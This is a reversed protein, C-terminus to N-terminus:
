DEGTLRVTRRYRIGLRDLFDYTCIERPLRGEMSEPRGEYLEM